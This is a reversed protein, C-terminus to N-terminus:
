RGRSRCARDRPARRGCWRRDRCGSGRPDPGCGARRSTRRASRDSWRARSRGAAHHLVPQLDRLARLRAHRLLEVPQQARARGLARHLQQELRLQELNQRGLQHAAELRVRVRSLRRQAPRPEPAIQRREISRRRTRGTAATSRAAAPPAAHQRRRRSASSGSLLPTRSTPCSTPAPRDRRRELPQPRRAAVALDRPLDQERQAVDQGDFLPRRFVAAATAHTGRRPAAGRRSRTESASAASAASAPRGMMASPTGGTLSAPLELRSARLAPSADVDVVIPVAASGYRRSRSRSRSRSRPGDVVAAAPRRDHAVGRRWARGAAARAQRRRRHVERASPARRRRLRTM